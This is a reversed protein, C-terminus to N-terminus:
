LVSRTSGRVILEPAMRICQQGTLPETMMHVLLDMAQRGLEKVPMAISTLEPSLIKCLMTNDFGIVSLREPVAIERKRAELMVAAAMVDNCGFVATPAAQNDLLQQASKQAGELKSDGVVVLSEDYAIGAQELASRYGRIRDKCSIAEDAIVGIRRHGLALLHETAMRGGQFDDVTICAAEFGPREHAFLVIPVQEEQLERLLEENNFKSAIIFGDTRKQRLLAIYSAEKEPDNDTSCMVVSFGLEQGRAEIHALYEAYIPNDIDPILLAVQYTHKGKMASALINPQYNVEKMITFIKKRTRDSIRGTNNIAKSVTATSVGALKAIDYITPKM